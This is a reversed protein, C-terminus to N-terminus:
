TMLGSVIPAYLEALAPCGNSEARFYWRLAGLINPCEPLWGTQIGRSIRGQMTQEDANFDGPYASRYARLYSGSCVPRGPPIVSPIVKRLAIDLIFGAINPDIGLLKLTDAIEPDHRNSVILQILQGLYQSTGGIYIQWALASEPTRSKPFLNSTLLQVVLNVDDGVDDPAKNSQYLRNLVGMVLMVDGNVTNPNNDPDDINPPEGLARHYFNLIDAGALDKTQQICKFPAPFSCHQLTARSRKLRLEQNGSVGMAAILPTLQDRSFDKPDSWQKQTPHRRFQGTSGLELLNLTDELPLPLATQWPAPVRYSIKASGNVLGLGVKGSRLIAATVM